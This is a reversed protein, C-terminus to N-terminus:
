NRQVCGFHNRIMRPVFISYLAGQVFQCPCSSICIKIESITHNQDFVMHAPCMSSCLKYFHGRSSRLTARKPVFAAKGKDRSYPCPSCRTLFSPNSHPCQAKPPSLGAPNPEEQGEKWFIFWVKRRSPFGTGVQKWAAEGRGALVTSRRDVGWKRCQRGQHSGGLVEPFYAAEDEPRGSRNGRSRWEGAMKKTGEHTTETDRGKVGPKMCSYRIM